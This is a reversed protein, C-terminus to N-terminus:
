LLTSSQLLAPAAQSRTLQQMIGHGLHQPLAAQSAMCVSALCGSIYQLSVTGDESWKNPDMLVSAEANLSAQTYM